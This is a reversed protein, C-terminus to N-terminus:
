FELTAVITDAYYGALVVQGAPIRGYITLVDPAGRGTGRLRVGPEGRGWAQTRSPNRFLEYTLRQAGQAMQRTAEPGAQNEGSGLTVTLPINKTCSVELRSTADLSTTTHTLLPDYNGFPLDAVAVRCNQSVSVTVALSSEATEARLPGTLLFGAACFLLLLRAAQRSV